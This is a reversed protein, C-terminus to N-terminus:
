RARAAQGRIHGTAPHAGGPGPVRAGQVAYYMSGEPNVSIKILGDLPASTLIIPKTVHARVFRSIFVANYISQISTLYRACYNNITGDRDTVLCGLDQGALLERGAAVHTDFGPHLDDLFDLFTDEGEELYFIDKRLENIEYDMDLSITRGGDLDLARKGKIEPINELIALANGLSTLVTDDPEGGDMLSTVARYRVERTDAMLTYFDKLTKLERHNIQAM